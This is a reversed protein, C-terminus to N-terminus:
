ARRHPTSVSNPHRFVRPKQRSAVWTVSASRSFFNSASTASAKQQACTVPSHSLPCFGSGMLFCPRRATLM